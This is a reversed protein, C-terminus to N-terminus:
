KMNDGKEQTDLKQRKKRKKPLVETPYLRRLELINPDIEVAKMYKLNRYGPERIRRAVRKCKRCCYKRRKNSIDKGCIPCHQKM